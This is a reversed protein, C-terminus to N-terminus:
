LVASIPLPSLELFLHFLTSRRPGRLLLALKSTKNVCRGTNSDAMKEEYQVLDVVMMSTKITGANGLYRLGINKEDVGRYSTTRQRM